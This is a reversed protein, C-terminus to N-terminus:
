ALYFGSLSFSYKNRNILKVNYNCHLSPGFILNPQLKQSSPGISRCGVRRFQMKCSRKLSVGSSWIQHAWIHTLFAYKDLNPMNQSLAWVFCMPLYKHQKWHLMANCHMSLWVVTSLSTVWGAILANSWKAMSALVWCM